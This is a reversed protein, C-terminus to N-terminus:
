EKEGQEYGYSVAVALLEGSPDIDLASISTAYKPLQRIRKRAIRDWSNVIGDSGGTFFCDHRHSISHFPISYFLSYYHLTLVIALCGLLLVVM